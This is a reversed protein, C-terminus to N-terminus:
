SPGGAERKELEALYRKTIEDEPDLKSARELRTRAAPLNGATLYAFGADAVFGPDHPRHQVATDLTLAAEDVRGQVLLSVGLEHLVDPQEPWLDLARRLAAEAAPPNGIRREVLGLGFHAEWLDPREAAIEALTERATEIEGERAGVAVQGAEELRRESRPDDIGFALRRAQARTEADADGGLVQDLERRAESPQGTVILARALNLRTSAPAGLALAERYLVTARTLDTEGHLFTAYAALLPWERPASALGEEFTRRALAADGLTAQCQALRAFLLAHTAGAGRARGFAAVASALDGKRMAVVGLEEQADAHHPSDPAIRRLRAAASDPADTELYLRAIKIQDADSLPHLASAHEYAVVAQSALGADRRAEGLMYHARWARPVASIVDELVRMAAESEGRELREAALYLLREEALELGPDAHLAAVYSGIAARTLQEARETQDRRLVTAAMELDMGVLLARYSEADATPPMVLRGHAEESLAVDLARAVDVALTADARTIADGALPTVFRGLKRADPSAVLTTRLVDGEAAGFLAHTAGIGRAYEAALKADPASGFVLVGSKGERDSMAVLFVPKAELVASREFRDVVRRALQRAIASTREDEERAGFPVVALVPRETM